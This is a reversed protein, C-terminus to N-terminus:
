APARELEAIEDWRAAITRTFEQLDAAALARKAEAITAENDGLLVALDASSNAQRVRPLLMGLAWGRYDAKGSRQPVPIALSQTSPQDGPFPREDAAPPQQGLQSVLV